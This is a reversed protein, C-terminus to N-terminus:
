KNHYFVCMLTGVCKEVAELYYKGVVKPDSNTSALCDALIDVASTNQVVYRIISLVGM